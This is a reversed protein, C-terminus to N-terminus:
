FRKLHTWHVSINICYVIYFLYKHIQRTCLVDCCYVVIFFSSFFLFSTVCKVSSYCRSLKFQMETSQKTDSNAASTGTVYRNLKANTERLAFASFYMLYAIFFLFDMFCECMMVIFIPSELFLLFDMRKVHSLYRANWPWKFRDGYVRHSNFVWENKDNDEAHWMLLMAIVQWNDGFLQSFGVFRKEKRLCDAYFSISQYFFAYFASTILCQLFFNRSM